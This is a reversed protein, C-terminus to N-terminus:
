NVCFFNEERETQSFNKLFKLQYDEDVRAHVSIIKILTLSLFPMWKRMWKWEDEMLCICKCADIADAACTQRIKEWIRAFFYLEFKLNTM